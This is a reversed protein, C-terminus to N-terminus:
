VLTLSRDFSDQLDAVVKASHTSREHCMGWSVLAPRALSYAALTDNLAGRLVSSTLGKRRALTAGLLSVLEAERTSEIFLRLSKDTGEASRVFGYLQRSAETIAWNSRLRSSERVTLAKGGIAVAFADIVPVLTAALQAEQSANGPLELAHDEDVSGNLLLLVVFGHTSPRLDGGTLEKTMWARTSDGYFEAVLSVLELVRDRSILNEGSDFLRELEDMLVRGEPTVFGRHPDVSVFIEDSMIPRRARTPALESAADRVRRGQADKRFIASLLELDAALTSPSRSYQAEWAARLFTLLEQVETRELGRSM